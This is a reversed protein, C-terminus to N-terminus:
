GTTNWARYLSEALELVEPQYLKAGAQSFVQIGYLDRGAAFSVYLVEAKQGGVTPSIRMAKATAVSPVQLDRIPATTTAKLEAAAADVEAQAAARDRMRFIYIRMLTLGRAPNAGRQDRLVGGEYGGATLRSVAAPINVDGASYLAEVMSQATPKQEVSGSNLSPVSDQAPLRLRLDALDATPTTTTVTTTPVTPTIATTTGTRVTVTVQVVNEDGCGALLAGAALPVAILRVIRPVAPVTRGARARTM